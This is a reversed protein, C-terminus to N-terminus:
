RLVNILDCMAENSVAALLNRAKENDKFTEFYLSRMGEYDGGTELDYFKDLLQEHKCAYEIFQGLQREGPIERAAARLADTLAAPKADRVLQQAEDNHANVGVVCERIEEVDGISNDAAYIRCGEHWVAWKVIENLDPKEQKEASQALLNGSTFVLGLVVFMVIALHGLARKL